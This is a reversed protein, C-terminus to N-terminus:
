TAESEIRTWAACAESDRAAAKGPRSPQVRALAPMQEPPQDAATHAFIPCRALQHRVVNADLHEPPEPDGEPVPLDDLAVPRRTPRPLEDRQEGKGVAVPKRAILDDLLEPRVKAGLGARGVQSLCGVM